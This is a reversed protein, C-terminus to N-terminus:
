RKISPHPFLHRKRWGIVALLGGILLGLVWIWSSSTPPIPQADGILVFPAWYFPHNQKTSRIYSLKAQRLAEDKKLGQQIHQFFSEMILKTAQDDVQWLSMVINPCGAYKFARALSLIGEGKALKGQGTNCASLVVLAADIKLNYLEHTYLIGEQPARMNELYSRAGEYHPDSPQSFVLGSYLPEKDHTYAHMALHLINFKKGNKRFNEETAEQAMFARGNMLSSITAIEEQTHILPGFESRVSQTMSDSREAYVPAFGAYGRRNKKVPLSELYLNAAYEYRLIYTNLVYPLTGYDVVYTEPLSDMVLLEFPLYGLEGDPIIILRGSDKQSVIPELLEQFLVHAQTSYERFFAPSREGQSIRRLDYLQQCFRPLLRSLAQANARRYVQCSTPGISFIYLYRNGFFYCVMHDGRQALVQQLQTKDLDPFEYKLRYYEPYKNELKQIIQYYRQKLDFVKGRMATVDSSLDQENRADYIQKQYYGIETKLHEAEALVETPIGAFEQAQSENLAEQLLLSKSKESYQFADWIYDENQSTQYMEWCIEIADDYYAKTRQALLERSDPTEYGLRITDILSTTKQSMEYADVLVEEGGNEQYKRLFNEMRYGQIELLLPLPYLQSFKESIGNPYLAELARQYHTEALDFSKKVHHISGIIMLCKALEPHQPHHKSLQALALRLFHLAQDRQQLANYILGQNIFNNALQLQSTNGQNLFITEVQQYYALALTYKKQKQFLAGLNLYTSALAPHFEGLRAKQIRVVREYYNQAGEMDKKYFSALGLNMLTQALTLSDLRPQSLKIDLSKHLHDISSQYDRKDMLVMALMSHAISATRHNSEQHAELLDLGKLLMNEAEVLLGLRHYCTGVNVFSGSRNPVSFSDPIAQKIEISQVYLDRASLYNGQTLHYGALRGYAKALDPDRTSLHTEGMITAQEMAQIGDSTKGIAVLSKGQLSLSKVYAKWQKNKQFIPLAREYYSSASDHQRARRFDDARNEWLLAQALSKDVTQGFLLSCASGIILLITLWINM